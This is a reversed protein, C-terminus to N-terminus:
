DIGFQKLKVVLIHWTFKIAKKVRDFKSHLNTLIYIPFYILAPLLSVSYFHIMLLRQYDCSMALLLLTFAILFFFHLLRGRTLEVKRSFQSKIVNWFLGVALRYRMTKYEFMSKCAINVFELPLCASFSGRFRIDLESLLWLSDSLCVCWESM